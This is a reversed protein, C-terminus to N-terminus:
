CSVKIPNGIKTEPNNSQGQRRVRNGPLKLVWPAGTIWLKGVVGLQEKIDMKRLGHMAAKTSPAHVQPSCSAGMELWLWRICGLVMAVLAGAASATNSCGHGTARVMDPFFPRAYLKTTQQNSPVNTLLELCFLQPIAIIDKEVLGLEKKLLTRNLSICKQLVPLAPLFPLFTLM